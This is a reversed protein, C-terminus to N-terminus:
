CYTDVRPADLLVDTRYYVVDVTVFITISLHDQKYLLNIQCYKRRSYFMPSPRVSGLMQFLVTVTIIRTFTTIHLLYMQTLSVYM